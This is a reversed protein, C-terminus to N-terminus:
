GRLDRLERVTRLENEVWQEVLSRLPFLLLIGGLVAVAIELSYSQREIQYAVGNFFGAGELMAAAIIRRVQFGALLGGVSGASESATVSAARQQAAMVRPLVVALVVQLAAFGAALPALRISDVKDPPPLVAAVMVLYVALGAFLGVVIIQLTRTFGAVRQRQEPSLM